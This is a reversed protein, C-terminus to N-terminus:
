RVKVWLVYAKYTTHYTWAQNNSAFLRAVLRCSGNSRSDIYISMVGQGLETSNYENISTSEFGVVGLPYYGPKSLTRTDIKMGGNGHNVTYTDTAQIVFDGYVVKKGATTGLSSVSNQLTQIEGELTTQLNNISTELDRALRSINNEITTDISAQWEELEELLHDNLFDKIINGAEDFKAKLERASMAPQDALTSIINLDATLREM